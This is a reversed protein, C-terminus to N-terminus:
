CTLKVILAGLSSKEAELVCSNQFMLKFTDEEESTISNGMNLAWLRSTLEKALAAKMNQNM